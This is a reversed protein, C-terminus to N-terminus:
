LLPSLLKTINEMVRRLRPRQQWEERTLQGSRAIYHNQRDRLYETVHQGYFLLSIEFNLAFSRIDFNSSGVLAVADDVSMTKAHLLGDDYLHLKVGLNLLDEYYARSAAGVLVQDCCQTLLEDRRVHDGKLHQTQQEQNRQDTRNQQRPVVLGTM